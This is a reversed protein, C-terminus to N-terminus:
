SQQIHHSEVSTLKASQTMQEVSEETDDGQGFQVAQVVWSDHLGHDFAIEDNGDTVSDSGPRLGLVTRVGRGVVKM